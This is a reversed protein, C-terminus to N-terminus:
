LSIEALYRARIQNTVWDHKIDVSQWVAAAAAASHYFTAASLYMNATVDTTQAKNIFHTVVQATYESAVPKCGLLETHWM